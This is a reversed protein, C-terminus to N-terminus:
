KESTEYTDGLHYEAIEKVKEIFKQEFAKGKDSNFYEDKYWQEYFNEYPQPIHAYFINIGQKRYAQMKQKFDLIRAQENKSINVFLLINNKNKQNLYKGFNLVDNTSMKEDVSSVIFLRKGSSLM